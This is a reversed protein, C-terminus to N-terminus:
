LGVNDVITGLHSSILLECFSSTRSPGTILKCGVLCGFSSDESSWSITPQIKALVSVRWGAVLGGHRYLFQILGYMANGLWWHDSIGVKRTKPRMQSGGSSWADRQNSVIPGLFAGLARQAHLPGLLVLLYVEQSGFVEWVYSEGFPAAHCDGLTGLSWGM